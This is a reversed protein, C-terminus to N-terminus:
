SAKRGGSSQTIRAKLKKKCRTINTIADQETHTRSSATAGSTTFLWRAVCTIQHLDKLESTKLVTALSHCFENWDLEAAHFGAPWMM